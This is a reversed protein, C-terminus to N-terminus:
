PRTRTASAVNQNPGNRNQGGWGSPGALGPVQEQPPVRPHEETAGKIGAVLAKDKASDTNTLHHADDSARSTLGTLRGAKIFASRLILGVARGAMYEGSIKPDGITESLFGTIAGLLGKKEKTRQKTKGEADAYLEVLQGDHLAKHQRIAIALKPPVEVKAPKL